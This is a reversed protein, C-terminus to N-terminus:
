IWNARRRRYLLAPAFLDLEEVPLSSSIMSTQGRHGSGPLKHTQRVTVRAKDSRHVTPSKRHANKFPNRHQYPLYWGFGTVFDNLGLRLGAHELSVLCAQDLGVLGRLGKLGRTGSPSM